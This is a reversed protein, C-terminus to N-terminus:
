TASAGQSTSATVTAHYHGARQLELKHNEAWQDLLDEDFPQGALLGLIEKRAHKLKIGSVQIQYLPGVDIRYVPQIRDPQIGDPQSGKADTPEAAILEVSAKFYGQELLYKRIREAADRAKPERYPKGEKIKGERTLVAATFPKTDGDFFPATV